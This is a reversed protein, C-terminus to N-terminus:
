SQLVVEVVQDSNAHEIFDVIGSIYTQPDETAEQVAAQSAPLKQVDACANGVLFSYNPQVFTSPDNTKL